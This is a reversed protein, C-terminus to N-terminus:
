CQHTGSCSRAGLRLDAERDGSNGRNQDARCNTHGKGNLVTVVCHLPADNRIPVFEVQADAFPFNICEFAIM